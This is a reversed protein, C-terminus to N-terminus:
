AASSQQRLISQATRYETPTEGFHQKFRRSFHAQDLFGCQYAITQVSIMRSAPDALIARARHLRREWMWDILSIGEDAAIQQLRRVSLKMASAVDQMGLGAVDLKDAIYSQARCLMAASSMARPPEAAIREAMGAAILEVAISSMREASSADLRGGHDKLSRLFSLLVPFSAQDPEICLGAAQRATGLVRELSKRPVHFLTCDLEDPHRSYYSQSFDVFVMGGRGVHQRGAHDFVFRNESELLVAFNDTDSSRILSPRRVLAQSAGTFQTVKLSGITAVDISARFNASEYDELAVSGIHERCAHQWFDARRKEDVDDTSIRSTM